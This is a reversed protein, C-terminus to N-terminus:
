EKPEAVEGAVEVEIGRLTNVIASDTDTIICSWTGKCVHSIAVSERTARVMRVRGTENNILTYTRTKM